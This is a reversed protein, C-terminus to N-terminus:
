KMRSQLIQRVEVGLIRANLREQLGVLKGFIGLLVLLGDGVALLQNTGTEKMNMRAM